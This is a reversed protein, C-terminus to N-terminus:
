ICQGPRLGCCYCSIIQGYQNVMGCCCCVQSGPNCNTPDKQCCYNGSADKTPCQGNTLTCCNNSDCNATNCSPQPNPDQALLRSQPVLLVSLILLALGLSYCLWETMACFRKM